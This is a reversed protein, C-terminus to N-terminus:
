IFTCFGAGVKIHTHIFKSFFTVSLALHLYLFCGTCEKEALKKMSEHLELYEEKVFANSTAKDTVAGEILSLEKKQKRLFSYSENIVIRVLWTKFYQPNRLKNRGKYAKLIAEQIVDECDPANKVIGYSVHFLVDEMDLVKKAFENKTM